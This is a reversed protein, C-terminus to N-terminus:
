SQLIMEKQESPIFVVPLHKFGFLGTGQFLELPEESSIRLGPLQELLMPLAISAEMRSLPAGICFHIGHGFAVHKNPTRTIDFRDPDPFQEADRNASALWAFIFAGAPITVDGLTVETKTMRGLRWAPSAYRLVEEIANPMLEPQARLQALAEPHENFCRVAQGLLSTTTVHGAILLVICFSITDELSLHEGDVEAALLDSMMDVQPHRRREELLQEFYDSMEDFTKDLAQDEQREDSKFFESDKVQRSLLADAWTKFLPRDSTPVGLMEAIVTTPLPNAFDSVLDVRGKPRIENLLEQTIAAIRGSLRALAKPTFASSVLGRYQRHDPPDMVLLSRGRKRGSVSSKRARLNREASFLSYDTIVRHVDTYRFVHWCGSSEDLWVPQTERMQQLWQYHQGVDQLSHLTHLM